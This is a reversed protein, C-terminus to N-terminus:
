KKVKFTIIASRKSRLGKWILLVIWIAGCLLVEM